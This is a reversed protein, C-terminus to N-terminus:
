YVEFYDGLNDLARQWRHPLRSIGDAAHYGDIHAVERRCVTVTDAEDSAFLRPCGRPSSTTLSCHYEPYYNFRVVRLENFFVASRTSAFQSFQEPPPPLPVRFGQTKTGAHFDHRRRTEAFDLEMFREPHFNVERHNAVLNILVLHEGGGAPLRPCRLRYLVAYGTPPTNKKDNSGNSRSSWQLHVHGAKSNNVSDTFLSSIQTARLMLTKLTSSPSQSLIYYRRFSLAPSVPSGLSFGGFLLITRCSEWMRFDPLSGAPSKVPNTQDLWKVVTAGSDVSFTIDLHQSRLSKRARLAARQRGFRCGCLQFSYVIDFFNRRPRGTQCIVEKALLRSSSCEGQALGFRTRNGADDGLDESTPSPASTVTQFCTEEFCERKGLGQM